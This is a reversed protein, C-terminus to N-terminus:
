WRRLEPLISQRLAQAANDRCAQGSPNVKGYLINAVATGGAQGGLYAELLGKIDNLWPLEVPSGNHLVIVTNPQVKLIEAILRNQCEPLRM